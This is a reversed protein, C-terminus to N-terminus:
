FTCLMNSLRFPARWIRSIRNVGSQAPNSHGLGVITRLEARKLKQNCDLAIPSRGSGRLGVQGPKTDNVTKCKCAGKKSSLTYTDWSLLRAYPDRDNRQQLYPLWEVHPCQELIGHDKHHAEAQKCDVAKRCHCGAHTLACEILGVKRMPSPTRVM